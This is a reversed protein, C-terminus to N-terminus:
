SVVVEQLHAPVSVAWGLEREFRLKLAESAAPEGHTIFTMRPAVGSRAWALIETADAHGSMGELRIVEAEIPVEQGFVRLRRGGAALTAGRTGVAQFGPLLIANRADPGFAVVHHLVRGGTLMGSASIIIMPGQRQNLAKSEEATRVFTALEYM